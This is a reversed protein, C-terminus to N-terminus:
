RISELISKIAFYEPNFIKQFSHNLLLAVVISFSICLLMLVFYGEGTDNKARKLDYKDEIVGGVKLSNMSKDAQKNIARIAFFDFIFVLLLITVSSIGEIVQQRVFIEYLHAGTSGAVEALKTLVASGSEIIERVLEKDM